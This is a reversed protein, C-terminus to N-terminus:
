LPCKPFYLSVDLLWGRAATTRFSTRFTQGGPEGALMGLPDLSGEPVGYSSPKEMGWYGLGNKLGFRLVQYTSTPRTWCGSPLCGSPSGGGLFRPPLHSAGRTM